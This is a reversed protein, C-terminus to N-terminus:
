LHQRTLWLHSVKLWFFFPSRNYHKQNWEAKLSFVTLAPKIIWQFSYREHFFCWQILNSYISIWASLFNLDTHKIHRLISFFYHIALNASWLRCRFFHGAFSSPYSKWRRFFGCWVSRWHCVVIYKEKKRKCVPAGCFFINRILEHSFNSILHNYPLWFFTHHSGYKAVMTRRCQAQIFATHAFSPLSGGSHVM